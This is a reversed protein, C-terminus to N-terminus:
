VEGGKVLLKKRMDQLRGRITGDIVKDGVRLYVGGLIDPDVINQIEIKKSYNDSLKERLRESEEETMKVATTVYAIKIGKGKYVLYKYDYYITRIRGLREHDILISILKDIDPDVKDKFISKLVKKKEYDAIGPHKLFEKIEENTTLINSVDRLQDLLLDIKGEAKAIEYLAHGYRRTVAEVRQM